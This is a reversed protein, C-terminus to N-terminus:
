AQASSSDNRIQTIARLGKSLDEEDRALHWSERLPNLEQDRDRWSLMCLVYFNRVSAPGSEAPSNSGRAKM